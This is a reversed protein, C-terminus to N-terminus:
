RILEYWQEKTANALKEESRVRLFSPVLIHEDQVSDCVSIFYYMDEINWEWKEEKVFVDSLYKEHIIRCYFTQDTKAQKRRIFILNIFM